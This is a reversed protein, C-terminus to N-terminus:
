RMLPKVYMVYAKNVYITEGNVLVKFWYRSADLISGVLKTNNALGVEVPKHLYEHSFDEPGRKQQQRPQQPKAQRQGQQQQHPKAQQQPMTM